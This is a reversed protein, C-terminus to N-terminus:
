LNKLRYIFAAGYAISEKSQDKIVKHIGGRVLILKVM